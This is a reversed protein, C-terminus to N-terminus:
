SELDKPLVLTFTSGVGPTSEVEIRGKHRDTIIKYAISLGLGTGVGVPKTTFFPHFIQAMVDPMMGKGTDIFQLKIEKGGDRGRITLKGQGEIAQAANIIINLFVQNLEAPYCRIEPLGELDLEVTVRDRLEARALVLTSEINERLDAVKLDAEDLRSFTRLAQVIRTVRGLGRLSASLLDGVDEQLFDVDADKRVKEAAQEMDLGQQKLLTELKDYATFFDDMSTRLSHLNSNVFSIPNNIEHAVGAVLQGLANMKESHILMAQTDRLERLTRELSERKRVLEEEAIKRLTVDTQIGVYHTLKGSDSFIPSMFLENWFMSGDKRYNRLVVTCDKGARLSNRVEAVGPQNRDNGQLFRCNRGIVEPVPYGTIHEFADNIYILPMDPLGADAITIGCSSAGMARDHLRLKAELSESSFNATTNMPLTM